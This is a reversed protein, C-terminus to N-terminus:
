NKKSEDPKNGIGLYVLIFKKELRKMLNAFNWCICFSFLLLSWTDM